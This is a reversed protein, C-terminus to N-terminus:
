REDVILHEVRDPLTLLRRQLWKPMLNIEALANQEIPVWDFTLVHGEDHTVLAPGNVAKRTEFLFDAPLDMLYYHGMEHFEEGERLFFNEVTFMLQGVEGVCRMEETIERALSVDSAEGMEVRGGPLLVFDEEDERCVLVHGAHLAIGAVRYNFRRKGELFSLITRPEIM